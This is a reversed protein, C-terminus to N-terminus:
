MRILASAWTLGAGFAVLLTGAVGKLARAARESLVLRRLTVAFVGVIVALPVVYFTCYLAVYALREGVGLGPRSSLVRGYMAPVGLTCGLEVLNVVFALAAIGLLAAPLSSAGAIRRM